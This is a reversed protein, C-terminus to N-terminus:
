KRLKRALPTLLAAAGCLFLTLSSPEPVTSAANVRGYIAWVEAGSPDIEQIVIQNDNPTFDAMNPAGMPLSEDSFATASYDRVFWSYSIFPGVPFPSAATIFDLYDVTGTTGVTCNNCIRLQGAGYSTLHISDVSLDFTPLDYVTPSGVYNPQQSSDYSYTGTMVDGVAVGSLNSVGYVSGTFTVTLVDAQLPIALVLVFILIFVRPM